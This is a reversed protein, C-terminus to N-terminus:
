LYESEVPSDKQILHWGTNGKWQDEKGKKTFEIGSKNDENDQNIPESKNKWDKGRKKNEKM